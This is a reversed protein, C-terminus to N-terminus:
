RRRNQATHFVALIRIVDAKVVHIVVYPLGPVALLRTEDISARGSLPLTELRAVAERIRRVTRGAAEPDDQAIYDHIQQLHRLSRKTYAIKM